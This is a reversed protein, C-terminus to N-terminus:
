LCIVVRESARSVAVYILRRRMEADWSSFIDRADVFVVPITSGQAKHTTSAYPLAIDVFWNSLKWVQKDGKHVPCTINGISSQIDLQEVQKTTSGVDTFVQYEVVSDHVEHITLRTGVRHKAEKSYSNIIAPAGEHPFKPNNLVNEHIANNYRNVTENKFMLVKCRNYDSGFEKIIQNQFEIEDVVQISTGNHHKRIDVGHQHRVGHRLERVLEQLPGKNREIITLESTDFGQTTVYPISSGVPALQDQDMVWVFKCNPLQHVIKHFASEDIYSAEDVVIIGPMRDPQKIARLEKYGPVLGARSYITSASEIGLQYVAENTTATFEPEWAKADTNLLTALLSVREWNEQIHRLLYGKGVGASGSLVMHKVDPKAIFSIFEKLAREQDENLESLPYRGIVM